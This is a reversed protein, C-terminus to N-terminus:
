CKQEELMEETNRKMQDLVNLFTKLDEPTINRKLNKELRDFMAIADLHRKIGLETLTIKKLRADGEVDTRQLYGAKELTKVIGTVTSKGINFAAELNKQYIESDRHSYLYGLIWGYMVEIDDLGSVKMANQVNKFFLKEALHVELGIQRENQKKM